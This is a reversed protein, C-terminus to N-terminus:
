YADNNALTTIFKEQLFTNIKNYCDDIAKVGHLRGIVTPEEVIHVMTSSYMPFGWYFINGHIGAAFYMGEVLEISIPSSIKDYKIANDAPIFHGDKHDDNIFWLSMDPKIVATGFSCSIQGTFDFPYFDLTDLSTDCSIILLVASVALTLLGFTNKM